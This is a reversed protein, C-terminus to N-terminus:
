ILRRDAKQENTLSVDLNITANQINMLMWGEGSVVVNVSEVLNEKLSVDNPLNSISVPVNMNFEFERGLNVLGWMAVALGYCILYITIRETKSMLPGNGSQEDPKILSDWKSQIWNYLSFTQATKPEM